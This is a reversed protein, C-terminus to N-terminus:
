QAKRGFRRLWESYVERIGRNEFESHYVLKGKERKALEFIGRYKMSVPKDTYVATFIRSFERLYLRELKKKVDSTKSLMIALKSLRKENSNTVLDNMLLVADAVHGSGSFGLMGFYKGGALLLFYFNATSYKLIKSSLYKDMVCRAELVGIEEISIETNDDFKFDEEIPLLSPPKSNRVQWTGLSDSHMDSYISIAKKGALEIYGVKSGDMERDAFFVFNKRECVYDFLEKYEEDGITRFSCREYEFSDDLFKFQKEYGGKYTPPFIFIPISDDIRKVFDFVDCNFYRHKLKGFVSKKEHFSDVMEFIHAEFYKKMRSQYLNKEYFYNGFEALVCIMAFQKETALLQQIKEKEFDLRYTFNGFTGNLHHSLALSFLSVDNALFEGKMMMPISFSGVCGVAYKSLQFQKCFLLAGRPLAGQFIM